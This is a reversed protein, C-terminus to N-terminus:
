PRREGAVSAALERIGAVAAAVPLDQNQGIGLGPGTAEVVALVGGAVSAAMGIALDVVERGVLGAAAKKFGM